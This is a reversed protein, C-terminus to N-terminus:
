APLRTKRTAPVGAYLHHPECDSTVVAGAAIVCGDGITVGPLVIARAGIWVGSGVMIPEGVAPGARRNGDGPGHTSTCLMVHMGIDCRDGVTITAATDFFVGYNVTTEVGIRFNTGGFWCGPM